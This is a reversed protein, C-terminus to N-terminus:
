CSKRRKPNSRSRASVPEKQVAYDRLIKEEKLEGYPCELYYRLDEMSEREGYAKFAMTRLNLERMLFYSVAEESVMKEADEYALEAEGSDNWYEMVSQVLEKPPHTEYERRMEMLWKFIELELEDGAVTASKLLYGRSTKEFRCTVEMQNENNESM